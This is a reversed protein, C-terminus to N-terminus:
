KICDNAKLANQINASASGLPSLGLQLALNRDGLGTASHLAEHFIVDGRIAGGTFFVNSRGTITLPNNGGPLIGTQAKTALGAFDLNVPANALAAAQTPNLSEFNRWAASEFDLVGLARM